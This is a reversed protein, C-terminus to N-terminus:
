LWKFYKHVYSLMFNHIQSDIYESLKKFRTILTSVVWENSYHLGLLSFENYNQGYNKECLCYIVSITYSWM